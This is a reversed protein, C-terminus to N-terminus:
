FLSPIAEYRKKSRILIDLKKQQDLDVKHDNLPNATNYIYLVEPIFAYHGNRAMEMMPLMIAKDWSMKFFKQEYVLDELKIKKFLAAYFTRIHSCAYDNRNATTDILKKDYYDNWGKEGTPWMLFQSYALWVSPDSYTKNIRSLVNEHALIDDGDLLVIIASDPCNKIMVYINALAGQRKTNKGVRIKHNVKKERIYEVVLDHTGDTSFDDMFMVSYNSYKQAFVSDLNHRCWLKNNYSTIVIIIEREGFVQSINLDTPIFAQGQLFASVLMMVILFTTKMNKGKKMLCSRLQHM